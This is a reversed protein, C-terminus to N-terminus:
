QVQVMAASTVTDGATVFGWAPFFPAVTRTAVISVFKGGTDNSTASCNSGCAIAAGWTWSGPSGTPCYCSDANAATGSASPTGGSTAVTPGNNVVVTNSWGAGAGQGNNVVASISSALAAGGTSSVNKANVVAYQAGAAVQADLQFQSFILNGVDVTGALIVLFVVSYLAFEVTAFGQRERRALPRGARGLFSLIIAAIRESM